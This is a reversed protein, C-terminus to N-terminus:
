SRCTSLLLCRCGRAETAADKWGKEHGRGMDRWGVRRLERHAAKPWPASESGASAQWVSLESFYAAHQLRRSTKRGTGGFSYIM